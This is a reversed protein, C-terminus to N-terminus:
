DIAWGNVLTIKNYTVSIENTPSKTEINGAGDTAVTYFDYTGDGGSSATDFSIPSTTFSGYSVFGGGNHQYFLEVSAIGTTGLHTDDTSFTVNFLPSPQGLSGNPGTAFSTPPTGDEFGLNLLISVNDSDLNTTALDTIDDGNFDGTTVSHPYDGVNYTLEPAFTGNGNGLLVSVRNTNRIVTTLDIMGDGNFDGTTINYPPKETFYAVPPAFTGHGTGLLVSVYSDRNSTSLDLIGDRNFDGTTVCNPFDGAPYTVNPAFSGDGIGGSGNGLIVSINGSGINATVLDTIGDLNFDGTTVCKPQDGTAYVVQPAFTGDGNGVSGNGLLVSISDSFLNAIALDTIVDGNFDGTAISVPLDETIYSVPSAFTGDGIGEAGNGLLVSINDSNVNATVLDTVGDNNFDGMVVTQPSDGTDYTVPLSFTGDGTADRGNGILVSVKDLIDNAVVIDTITDGNFDGITMGQTGGGSTYSNPAVFTGDGRRNNGKGFLILISNSEFIVTALDSIGDGNFDGTKLDAPLVGTSYSALNNFTGDGVGNSGNGLLVTINDPNSNMTALDFIGDDNFDGTTVRIPNKGVNYSVTPTFAGNGIGGSGNGLAVRIYNFVIQSTVFDTIGDGNFDGTTIGYPWEGVIFRIPNAFTGNGKGGSGNGIMVSVRSTFTVTELGSNIYLLDTIGDDNFDGTTVSLPSEGASYNVPNAFTGDGIGGTGKGILVVIIDFSSHTSVIDTIGDGNFDGLSLSQLGSRTTSTVPAAFTGDGLGMFVWISKACNNVVVFDTIGDNNLDGTRLIRPSDGAPFTIQPAFEGGGTGLIVSLDDSRSNATAFDTIGDGNFDGTVLDGPGEGTSITPFPFGRWEQAQLIGASAVLWVVFLFNSIRRCNMFNIFQICYKM